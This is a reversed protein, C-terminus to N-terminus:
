RFPPSYLLGGRTWLANLGRELHLPSGTGLNREFIEGYNGVAAITRAAWNPGLGLGLGVEPDRGLLRAAEDDVIGPPGPATGAARAATIDKEEALILAFLVWRIVSAWQPDSSRVTPGVPERSIVETLLRTDKGHEKLMRQTAVLDLRDGSLMDCRDQLMAEDRGQRTKFTAVSWTLNRAKTYDALNRESTTQEVVCARTPTGDAPRGTTVLFGQGDYLAVAAFTIGLGTERGLTWTTPSMLVDLEGQRLADIRMKMTSPLFAVAESDGLVAAAVARCLDPFFGTWRGTEDPRALGPGLEAIGCRLEGREKVQDLTGALAPVPTAGLVLAVAAALGPAIWRGTAPSVTGGTTTVAAM